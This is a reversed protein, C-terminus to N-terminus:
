ARKREATKGAGASEVIEAANSAVHELFRAITARERADFPKLLEANMRKAEALTRAVIARGEREIFLRLVRADDGDAARRILRRAEMRDVLGTLSSKGMKLAEAVASIPQGDESALILLVGHQTASVGESAQLQRDAARFLSGHARQLLHFVRFDAM